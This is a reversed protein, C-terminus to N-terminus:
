AFFNAVAVWRTTRDSTCMMLAWTNAQAYVCTEGLRGVWLPYTTVVPMQYKGFNWNQRTEDLLDAVEQPMLALSYDGIKAM